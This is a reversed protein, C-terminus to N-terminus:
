AAPPERRGFPGQFAAPTNLQAEGSGFVELLFLGLVANLLVAGAVLAALWIADGLARREAARRDRQGRAIPEGDDRIPRM